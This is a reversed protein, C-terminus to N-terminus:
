TTPVPEQVTRAAVYTIGLLHFSARHHSIKRRKGRQKTNGTYRHRCGDVLGHRAKRKIVSHLHNNDLIVTGRNHLVHDPVAGTGGIFGFAFATDRMEKFMQQKLSCVRQGGAFKRGDNCCITPLVVRKGAIIIGGIKLAHGGVPKFQHHLHFGVPHDIKAQRFFIDHCFPIDNQFFAVLPCVVVRTGQKAFLDVGDLIVVM